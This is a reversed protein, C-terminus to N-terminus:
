YHSNINISFIRPLDEQVSIGYKELAEWLVKRFTRSPIGDLETYIPVIRGVNHNQEVSPDPQPLELEVLTKRQPSPQTNLGWVIEPHVIEPKGQYFKVKGTVVFQVGPKFRLEMGRPAYFWKLNLQGTEDTCKVELMSKGSRYLPIIKQSLVRVTLSAKVGEQLGSIQIMKSRDEYTRPFFFLLDKVTQIARSTFVMGLKPGVGKVFQIATDVGEANLPAKTKM